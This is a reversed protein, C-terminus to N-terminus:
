EEQEEENQLENTQEDVEEVVTDVVDSVSDGVTDVVSSVDDLVAPTKNGATEVSSDIVSTVLDQGGDIVAGLSACSTIFLPILILSINKM